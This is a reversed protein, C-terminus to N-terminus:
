KAGEKLLELEKEYYAVWAKHHNLSERASQEKSCGAVFLAVCLTLALRV